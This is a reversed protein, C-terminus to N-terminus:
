RSATSDGAVFVEGAIVAIANLSVMGKTGAPQIAELAFPEWRSGDYRAIGSLGLAWVENAARGTVQTPQSIRPVIVSTWVGDGKSHVLASGAAYVDNPGSAWLHTLQDRVGSSERKWTGKVRHYIAGDEGVAYATDPDIVLGDNIPVKLDAEPSWAGNDGLRHVTGALDFALVDRPGSGSIRYSTRKGPSVEIERWSKGDYHAVAVGSAYVDNPGSAWGGGLEKLNVKFVQQWRGNAQRKYVVGDDPGEVGTYAYGAVYLDSGASWIARLMEGHPNPAALLENHWIGDASRRRLFGTSVMDFIGSTPTEVSPSPSASASASASASRAAPPAGGSPKTSCGLLPLAVLLPLTLILRM